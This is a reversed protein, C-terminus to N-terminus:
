MKRSCEVLSAFHVYFTVNLRKRTIMTAAYFCYTNCIRLTHKYGYTDLMCHAHERSYQWRDGRQSYLIKKACLTM